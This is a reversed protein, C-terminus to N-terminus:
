LSPPGFNGRADQRFHLITILSTQIQRQETPLGGIKKMLCHHPPCRGNLKDKHFSKGAWRADTVQISQLLQTIVDMNKCEISIVAQHIITQRIAMVRDFGYERSAVV